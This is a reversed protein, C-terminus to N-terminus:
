KNRKRIERDRAKNWVTWEDMEVAPDFVQPKGPKGDPGIHLKQLKGLIIEEWKKESVEEPWSIEDKSAGKTILPPSVGVKGEYVLIDTSKDAATKVQYITGRVGAMATPTQIRYVHKKKGSLKTVNSWVSGLFLRASFNRLGTKPFLSKDIKLLSNSALRVISGDPLTLEVIGKQSTKIFHGAAVSMGPKLDSWPGKQSPGSYVNGKTYTTEASIAGFAPSTLLVAWTIFVAANIIMSSKRIRILAARNMATRCMAIRFM